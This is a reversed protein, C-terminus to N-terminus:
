RVTIQVTALRHDILTLEKDNPPVRRVPVALAILFKPQWVTDGWLKQMHIARPLFDIIQPLEEIM